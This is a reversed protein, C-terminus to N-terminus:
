ISSHLERDIYSSIHSSRASNLEEQEDSLKLTKKLANIVEIVNDLVEPPAKVLRKFHFPGYDHPVALKTEVLEHAELRSLEEGREHWDKPVPTLRSKECNNAFIRIDKMMLRTLEDSPHVSAAIDQFNGDNKM